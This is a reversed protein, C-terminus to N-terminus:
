YPKGKPPSAPQLQALGQQMKAVAEKEKGQKQLDLGEQCLKAAETNPSDKLASQCQKALEATKGMGAWAVPAAMLGMIMAAIIPLIAKKM